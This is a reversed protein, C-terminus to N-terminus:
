VTIFGNEFGFNMPLRVCDMRLFRLENAFSMRLVFQVCDIRLIITMTMPM